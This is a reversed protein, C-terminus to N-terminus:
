VRLQAINCKANQYQQRRLVLWMQGTCFGAIAIKPFKVAINAPSSRVWPLRTHFSVKILCDDYAARARVVVSQGSNMKTVYSFSDQQPDQKWSSGYKRAINSM